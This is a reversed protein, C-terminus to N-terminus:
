QEMRWTPSFYRRNTTGSDSRLGESIRGVGDSGRPDESRIDDRLEESDSEAVLLAGSP